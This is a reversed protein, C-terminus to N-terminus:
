INTGLDKVLHNSPRVNATSRVDTPWNQIDHKTELRM